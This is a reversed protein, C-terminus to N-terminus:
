SAPRADKARAAAFHDWGGSVPALHPGDRLWVGRGVQVEGIRNFGHADPGTFLLAYEEGGSLAADLPDLGVAHAARAHGDATPLLGRDLVIAVRSDEALHEADQALGDSLDIAATATAAIALGEAIAATPSMWRAVFPVLEPERARNQLLAELGIRAAGVPGTVFVGDGARAGSRRLPARPAIGLATTTISLASSPSRTLNGGLVPAGHREAGRALGEILADFFPEDLADPLELAFLVGGGALAPTAGMAALDSLSAEVARAALHEIPAWARRFHVGEVSADVTVVLTGGVFPLIACDDGIGVAPPPPGRFRARLRAIREFETV